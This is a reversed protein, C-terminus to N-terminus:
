KLTVLSRIVADSHVGSYRCTGAWDEWARQTVELLALADVPAPPPLYSPGYGLSFTMDEGAAVVFSGRHRYGDAEIPAKTRLVAMDPGAVAQLANPETRNIWPVISGYDYRLIFETTMAVTGRRGRVIRILHSTDSPQTKGTRFPMFDILTVAGDKTEFDTELILTNPRYRRRIRAPETPSISWHGNDADGLLSAFVAGSDFRPWCLWDISGDRGVLAATECDGILAYDEIRQAM